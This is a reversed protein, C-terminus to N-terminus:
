GAKEWRPECSMARYRCAVQGGVGAVEADTLYRVPASANLRQVVKVLGSLMEMESATISRSVLLGRGEVM